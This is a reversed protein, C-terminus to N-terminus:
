KAELIIFILHCKHYCCTQNHSYKLMTTMIHKKISKRIFQAHIYLNLSLTCRNICSNLFTSVGVSLLNLGIVAWYLIFTYHQWSYGPSSPSKKCISKGAKIISSCLLKAPSIESMLPKGLCNSSVTLKAIDGRNTIFMHCPVHSDLENFSSYVEIYVTVRGSVEEHSPIEKSSWTTLM